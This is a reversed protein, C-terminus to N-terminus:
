AAAAGQWQVSGAIAGEQSVLLDRVREFEDQVNAFAKVLEPDFHSSKNALIVDCANRHPLAPKYVRTTTLADYM